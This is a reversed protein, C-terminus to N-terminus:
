TVHQASTPTAWWSRTAVPQATPDRREECDASPWRALPPLELKTAAVRSAGTDGEEVTLSAPGGGMRNQKAEVPKEPPVPDRARRRSMVFRACLTVRRRSRSSSHAFLVATVVM